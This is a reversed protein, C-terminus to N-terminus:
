PHSAASKPLFITPSKKTLLETLKDAPLPKCLLFGQALDCGLEKLFTLQEETEVGEAVVIINLSHAMSIIAKIIERDSSEQSIGQVFSQDIKIRNIPLKKLYGLSSYGTGFDDISLKIGMKDFNDLLISTVESQLLISETLELELLAPDLQTEALEQALIALMKQSKFQRGSINVAITMPPFGGDVWAKNQAMANHLAWEGIPVILGTEEALPIFQPPSILQQSEQDNWRLLAEIGRIENSLLDIIPQYHLLFEDKELAKRMKNELVLHEIATVNMASNYFQYNNRGVEKAKYMAIDANKILSDYDDGDSPFQSIGISVGITVEHEGLKFPLDMSELIRQAIVAADQAKQIKPLIIMFEDGGMRAVTDSDRICDVLRLAVDKLMKDGADHGLTDNIRKFRDLDLFLLALTHNGWRAQVLSQSLLEMMYTRNPLSTLSDYHALSQFQQEILKRETIDRVIGAIALPEQAEDKIVARSLLVPFLSDDQKKHLFEGKLGSKLAKPFISQRYDIESNHDWLMSANNGVVEDERYGYTRCFADNVYIIEDDMDTFYVSDKIDMIAHSLMKFLKEEKHHRVANDVTVPLIKLYNREPDKILYDLAGSKMAKVALEENGTGTILIVPTGELVEFVDFANGDGLEYDTLVIDFAEKQLVKRAEQVSGAIAYDYPLEQKEMLREFAKQDIRDDEVYLIKLTM